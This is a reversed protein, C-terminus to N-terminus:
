DHRQWQRQGQYITYHMAFTDTVPLLYYRLDIKMFIVIEYKGNATMTFMRYCCM